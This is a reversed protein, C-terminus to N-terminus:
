DLRQRLATEWRLLFGGLRRPSALWWGLLVGAGNALMDAYDFSRYGLGGQIFELGIGMALFCGALFAHCEVRYLQAFWLMLGAYGALHAWKDGFRVMSVDPPQATLSLYVVAAVWIWGLGLWVGRWRLM